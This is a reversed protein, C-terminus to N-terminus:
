QLKIHYELVSFNELSNMDTNNIIEPYNKYSDIFSINSKFISENHGDTFSAIRIYHFINSRIHNNPYISLYM